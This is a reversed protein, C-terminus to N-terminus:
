KVFVIEYFLNMLMFKGCGVGGYFYFGCLMFIDIGGMFCGFFGKKGSKVVYGKFVYAFMTFQTM